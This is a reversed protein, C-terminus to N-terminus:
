IIVRIADISLDADKIKDLNDTKQNEWGSIHEDTIM